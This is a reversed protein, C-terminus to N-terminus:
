IAVVPRRSKILGIFVFQMVALALLIVVFLLDSFSASSLTSTIAMFIVGMTPAIICGFLYFLALPNLQSGYDRIMIRQEESLFEVLGQLVDSTKSGSRGTNAMQWLARRYYPSPNRTASEELAESLDRGSRVEKVIKRFEHAVTGYSLRADDYEESISVISDFLPVGASTQIMMHRLAFLLNRDLDTRNKSSRWKPYITIYSFIFGASIISILLIIFRMSLEVLLNNRYAWISLIAGIVFFYFAFALLAGSLYEKSTLPFRAGDLDGELSPFLGGMLSAVPFFGRIVGKVVSYPFPLFPITKMSVVDESM